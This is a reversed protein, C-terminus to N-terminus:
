YSILQHPLHSTITEMIVKEVDVMRLIHRQSVEPLPCMQKETEGMPSAQSNAGVATISIDTILRSLLWAVLGLGIILDWLYFIAMQNHKAKM